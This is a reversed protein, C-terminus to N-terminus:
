TKLDIDYFEHAVGGGGFETKFQHISSSLYQGENRNSTGFDFYRRGEAQTQRIAHEFVADLASVDHGTANSAIYQAHTVARSSFLTVGAVVQGNLLGVIFKINEPFLSALYRIEDTTHVPKQAIKRELNEELARWFGEIFREGEVVEVGSRLAKKLGRKRRSSPEHRNALDIACSLDCRTRLAGLRFLAYLDDGSPSQHYISPVAKYRLSAMGQERYYRMLDEFAEIMRDGVLNGVHLLGGFTIGPHSVVRRDVQPDIAAPLLGVTKGEGDKLILSVDRFRDGQYSLFRRTHLFTAMPCKVILEDWEPGDQEGYPSIRM